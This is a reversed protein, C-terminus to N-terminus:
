GDDETDDDHGTNDDDTDDKIEADNHNDDKAHDDDNHDEADNDDKADHHGDTDDDDISGKTIDYYRGDLKNYFYCLADIDVGREVTTKLKKLATTWDEFGSLGTKALFMAFETRSLKGDGDEDLLYFLREVRSYFTNEFAAAMWCPLRPSGCGDCRQLKNGADSFRRRVSQNREDGFLVLRKAADYEDRAGGVERYDPRGRECRYSM